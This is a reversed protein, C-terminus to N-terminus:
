ARAAPFLASLGRRLAALEGNTVLGIWRLACLYAAAAAVLLLADAPGGTRLLLLPLGVLGLGLASLAPRLPLAVDRVGHAFTAAMLVAAILVALGGGVAGLRPVLLAGAAALAAVQVGAAALSARPRELALALVRAACAVAYAVLAATLPPLATAAPRFAAGALLVVLPEGVLVAAFVALVGVVAALTLLRGMVELAAPLRGESRCRAVLPVFAMALHWLAHTGFLYGSAALSYRGVEDPDAGLMRVLAETGRQCLSFLVNSGFFLANYRLYPGIFAADLRVDGFRLHPRAWVVGLTLVAAEALLGGICAGALGFFFVGAVIFVLSCWRRVLEGMGWRAAQNLGLFFGFLVNSASRLLVGAAIAAPLAIPIERLWLGAILLYTLAAGAGGLLRVALLSGVLRRREDTAPGLTPVFRALLQTSGLSSLLSFWLGVSTLVIFRGFDAPGLLRPVLAAFAVARLVDLGRQGVLLSANRLTVRAEADAGDFESSV